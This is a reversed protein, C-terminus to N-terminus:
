TIEHRLFFIFPICSFHFLFFSFQRRFDGLPLLSSIVLPSPSPHLIPFSHILLYLSHPHLFLSLSSIPKLQSYYINFNLYSGIIYSSVGEELLHKRLILIGNHHPHFVRMGENKSVQKSHDIEQHTSYFKTRSCFSSRM